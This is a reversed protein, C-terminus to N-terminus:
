TPNGNRCGGQRERGPSRLGAPPRAGDSRGRLIAGVCGVGGGDTVFAAPGGGTALFFRSEPPVLAAMATSHFLVDFRTLLAKARPATGSIMLITVDNGLPVLSRYDMQPLSTNTAHFAEAGRELTLCHIAAWFRANPSRLGKDVEDDYERPRSLVAGILNHRLTAPLDDTLNLQFTPVLTSSADMDRVYLVTLSPAKAGLSARIGTLCSQIALQPTSGEAEVNISFSENKRSCFSRADESVRCLRYRNQPILLIQIRCKPFLRCHVPNTFRLILHM